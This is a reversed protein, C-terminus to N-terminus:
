RDRLRPPRTSIATSAVSRRRFSAWLLAASGALLPASPEPIPVVLTQFTLDRSIPTVSAAGSYEFFGGGSYVSSDSIAPGPVPGGSTTVTFAMSKGSFQPIPTQFTMEAWGYSGSFSQSSTFSQSGLMNGLKGAGADFNWVTVVFPSSSTVYLRLGALTGNLGATFSQGYSVYSEKTGGWPSDVDVIAVAGHCAGLTLMSFLTQQIAKM